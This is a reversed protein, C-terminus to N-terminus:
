TSKDLLLSQINSSILKNLNLNECNIDFIYASTRVLSESRIVISCHSKANIEIKKYPIISIIYGVVDRMCEGNFNLWIFKNLVFICYIIKNIEDSDSPNSKNIVTFNGFFDRVSSFLNYIYSSM